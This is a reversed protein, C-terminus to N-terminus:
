LLILIQVSKDPLDLAAFDFAFDFIGNTGAAGFGVAFTFGFAFGTGSADSIPCRESEEEDDDAVDPEDEDVEDVAPLGPSGATLPPLPFSALSAENLEPGSQLDVCTIELNACEKSYDGAVIINSTHRKYM